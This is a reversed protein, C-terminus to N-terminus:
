RNSQTNSDITFLLGEALTTSPSWGLEKRAKGVDAVVDMVEAPREDARSLIRKAVPILANILDSIGAVSVSVGSGANYTGTANRVRLLLDVLDDVYLYDRKPRDDAVEIVCSEDSLAQRLVLPILFSSAQGPGYINFPRVIAARVGFQSTYYRVLEEGLIKTQSYPNLPSVPHGEDIPLYKPQGYVYSSVFTLSAGTRRCFELVSVTGLVNTKYFGHPDNWSEPVFSKAALHYVHSVDDSSRLPSEAIDGDRTSMV